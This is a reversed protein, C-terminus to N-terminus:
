RANLWGMNTCLDHMVIGSAVSVNHSRIVGCQPISVIFSSPFKDFDMINEPIGRNENGFVLCPRSLASPTIKSINMYNAKLRSQWNFKGLVEGGQEVFIPTYANSLMTAWFLNADFGIMEGSVEKRLGGIAEVEIYNNAGVVGRRDYKRRGFIYFKEAGYLSATRIMSGINLDGTVSIACVAFPNRQREFVEQLEPVTLHDYRKHVNFGSERKDKKIEDKFNITM